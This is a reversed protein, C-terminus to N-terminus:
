TKGEIDGSGVGICGGGQAEFELAGSPVIGEEEFEKAVHSLGARSPSPRSTDLSAFIRSPTPHRDRRSCQMRPLVKVGGAAFKM